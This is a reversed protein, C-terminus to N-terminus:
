VVLALRRLEKSVLATVLAALLTVCNAGSVKITHASAPKPQITLHVMSLASPMVARALGDQIVCVTELIRPPKQATFVLNMAGMVWGYVLAISAVSVRMIRQTVHAVVKATLTEPVTPFTVLWVRGDLIVAACTIPLMVSVTVLAILATWVLAALYMACHDVIAVSSTACANEM